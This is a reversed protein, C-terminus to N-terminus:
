KQSLLPNMVIPLKPKTNKDKEISVDNFVLVKPVIFSAPVAGNLMTNYVIQESSGLMIDKFKTLQFESIVASRVLQEEGTKVMIRYVGVPKSVALGRGGMMSALTRIQGPNSVELKRILYIFELGNKEAEKLVAKSM